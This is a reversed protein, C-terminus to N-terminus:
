TACLPFCSWSAGHDSAPWTPGTPLPVAAPRAGGAKGPRAAGVVNGERVVIEGKEVVERVPEVKDQADKKQKATERQQTDRQAQCPRRRHRCGSSSRRSQSGPQLPQTAQTKIALLDSQRVRDRMVEDLVRASETIVRPWSHHQDLLLKARLRRSSARPWASFATAYGRRRSSTDARINSVGNFLVQAQARQQQAVGPDYDYVDPVILRPPM